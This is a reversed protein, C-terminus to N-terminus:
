ASRSRNERGLVSGFDFGDVNPLLADSGRAAANMSGDRRRKFIITDKATTHRIGAVTTDLVWRWDEYAYGEGIERPKFPLELMLATPAFCLADYPNMVLMLRPDFFSHDSPLNVKVGNTRDFRWNLEPHVVTRRGDAECATIRQHAKALWNASFLDDADLFAAYRGGSLEVGRNRTLGPDREAVTEIRWGPLPLAEFYARTEDKPSDLVILREVSLGAAQAAAISVEASRITRGCVVSESHATLIVSVDYTM